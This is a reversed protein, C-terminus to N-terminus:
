SGAFRERARIKVNRSNEWKWAIVQFAFLWGAWSVRPKRARADLENPVVELASRSGLDVIDLTECNLRLGHLKFLDSGTQSLPGSKALTGGINIQGSRAGNM